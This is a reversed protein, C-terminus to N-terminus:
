LGLGKALMSRVEARLSDAIEAYVLEEVFMELEEDIVTGHIRGIADPTIDALAKAKMASLKEPHVTITGRHIELDQRKM